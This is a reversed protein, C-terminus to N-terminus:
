MTIMNISITYDHNFDYDLFNKKGTITIMITISIRFARYDHNYYITIM